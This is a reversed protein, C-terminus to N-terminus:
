EEEKPTEEEKGKGVKVMTPRIVRDYLKYGKQLEEVVEGDEGEGYLVAEHVNPDFAEGLAKIETLGHGELIARLKRYILAIGDVWTLGALKASVNELARELDDLVALLNEVLVANAFKIAESREQETRRKFNMFDAQARQWNGLYDQARGKEEALAERLSEVDDAIVVDEEKGVVSSMDEGGLDKEDVM